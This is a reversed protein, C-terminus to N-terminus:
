GLVVFCDMGVAYGKRCRRMKPPKKDEEPLDAIIPKAANEEAPSFLPVNMHSFPM